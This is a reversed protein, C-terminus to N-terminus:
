KNRAYNALAGILVLAGGGILREDVPKNDLSLILVTALVAVLSLFLWAIHDDLIRKM